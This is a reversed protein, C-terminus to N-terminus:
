HVEKYHHKNINEGTCIWVKIGIVGYTTNAIATAYDIKSRLTNLPMIGRSYGESRAIDVGNLRGSVKTKVGKVGSKLANSIAMKQVLKYSERREIKKAIDNAIWQANLYLKRIELIKIEVYYKSKKTKKTNISELITKHIQKLVKAENGLILGPKATLIEVLIKEERRLITINCIDYKRQFKKNIDDRIKKDQLILAIYNKKDSYWISNWNKFIGYRLGNPNVKQGM